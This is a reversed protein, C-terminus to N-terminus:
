SNENSEFVIKPHKVWRKVLWLRLKGKIPIRISGDHIQTERSFDVEAM